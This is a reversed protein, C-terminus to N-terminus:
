IGFWNKLLYVLCPSHTKSAKKPLPVVNISHLLNPLFPIPTSNNGSTTSIAFLFM